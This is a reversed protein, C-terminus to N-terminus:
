LIDSETSDNFQKEKHIEGWTHSYHHIIQSYPWKIM